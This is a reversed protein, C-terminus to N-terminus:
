DEVCAWVARDQPLMPHRLVSGENIGFQAALGGNLELVALVDRGGDIATEDLPVANEHVRTVTGTADLFIMDLPILTNRMWFSARQPREYVFLMGAQRPLSTRHMLGQAREADTLALEVTFRAHGWSGRLDARDPVCDAAQSAPASFLLLVLAVARM